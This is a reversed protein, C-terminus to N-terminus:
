LFALYKEKKYKEAIEQIVCKKAIINQKSVMDMIQSPISPLLMNKEALSRRIFKCTAITYASLGDVSALKAVIEERSEQKFLFTDM